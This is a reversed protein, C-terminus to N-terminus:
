IVFRSLCYEILKNRRNDVQEKLFSGKQISGAMARTSEIESQLCGNVKNIPASNGISKNIKEELLILNGFRNKEYDYDQEFGYVRVDFEPERSFIHEIQLASYKEVSLPGGDYEALIYKTAGNGYIDADLYNRFTHDSMFKEVINKLSEHIEDISYDKESLLSALWYADAIPNTGRTKYVRVEVTELYSLTSALKNQMFLRVIIPYLTATFELKCFVKIMDQNKKVTKLLDCYGHAFNKFDTLYEKIFIELNSKNSKISECHGKINEFITDASNRNNWSEPFFRKSSYYHHTFITNEEFRGLINLEDKLMLIEDYSDFIVEFQDNIFSNLEENLHLTSYLMLISKTKDLIRLPLGRDNIISFMKVAQAQGEVNFVLVEIRDRIFKIMKEIERLTMANTYAKFEKKANYMFKHSRKEIDNYIINDFNFLVSGLFQGDIGLPKLKLNGKTGIFATIQEDRIDEDTIREILVNLLIFLTTIRQQGDIIEYVTDVSLGESENQKFSLTGIFHNMDNRISEEIDIWLAKREIETWSYKRQYTPIIFKNGNFISGIKETQSRSISM